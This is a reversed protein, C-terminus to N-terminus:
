IGVHNYKCDLVNVFYTNAAFQGTKTQNAILGGKRAMLFCQLEQMEQLDPERRYLKLSIAACFLERQRSDTM